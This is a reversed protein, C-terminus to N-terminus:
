VRASTSAKRAEREANWRRWQAVDVYNCEMGEATSNICNDADDAKSKIANLVTAIAELGLGNAYTRPQEMALLAFSALTAIETFASSAMSDMSTIAERLQAPTAKSM